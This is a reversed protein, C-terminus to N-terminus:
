VQRKIIALSLRDGATEAFDSINGINIVIDKLLIKEALDIKMKFIKEILKREIVDSESEKKDIRRLEQIVDKNYFFGTTVNRLIDLSELNTDVLILLEDVIKEPVVVQQLCIQYCISEFNGPIRDITEILGLVDGRSEPILAKQYLECEIERRLDDAISEESHVKAVMISHQKSHKERILTEICKRFEDRCREVQEFYKEIRDIISKQKKFLFKM